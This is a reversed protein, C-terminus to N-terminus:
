TERIINIIIKIVTIEFFNKLHIKTYAVTRNASSKEKEEFADSRGLKKEKKKKQVQLTRSIEFYVVIMRNMISVRSERKNVKNM